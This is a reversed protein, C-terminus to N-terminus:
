DRRIDNANAGESGPNNEHTAESSIEISILTRHLDRLNAVWLHMVKELDLRIRKARAKRVRWEPSSLGEGETGPDHHAASMGPLGSQHPPERCRGGRVNSYSRRSRHHAFSREVQFAARDRGNMLELGEM